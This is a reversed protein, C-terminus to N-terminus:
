IKCEETELFVKLLQHFFNAELVFAIFLAIKQTAAKEVSLYIHKIGNSTHSVNASTISSKAGFVFFM